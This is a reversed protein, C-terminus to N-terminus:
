RSKGGALKELKAKRKPDSLDLSTIMVNSPDIPLPVEKGDVKKLTVGEVTIKRKKTDVGAVKGSFGKYEGRMIVVTDGKRVPLSRVNYKKILSGDLHSAIQKRRIHHPANFWAKRQKRPSKSKTRSM